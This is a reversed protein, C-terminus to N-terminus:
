LRFRWNRIWKSNPNTNWWQQAEFSWSNSLPDQQLLHLQLNFGIRSQERCQLSSLDSIQTLKSNIQPYNYKQSTRTNKFVKLDEYSLLSELPGNSGFTTLTKLNKRFFFLFFKLGLTPGFAVGYAVDALRMYWRRTAPSTAGPSLSNFTKPHRMQSGRFVMAPQVQSDCTTDCRTVSFQCKPQM